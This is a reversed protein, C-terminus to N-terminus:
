KFEENEFLDTKPSLETGKSEIKTVKIEVNAINEIGLITQVQKKVENQVKETIEPINFGAWLVAKIQISVGDNKPIIIPHLEKIEVFNKATRLVFDEVAAVSITVEGNPNEFAIYQEKKFKLLTSVVFLLGLGFILVGFILSWPANLVLTVSTELSTLANFLGFFGCILMGGIFLSSAAWFASILSHVIKM